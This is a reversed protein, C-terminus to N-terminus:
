NGMHAVAFDVLHMNLAPQTVYGEFYFTQTM